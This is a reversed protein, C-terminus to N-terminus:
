MRKLLSNVYQLQVFGLEAVGESFDTHSGIITSAVEAAAVRTSLPMGGRFAMGERYKPHEMIEFIQEALDVILKELLPGVIPRRHGDSNPNPRQDPIFEGCICYPTVDEDLWVRCVYNFQKGKIELPSLQSDLFNSLM